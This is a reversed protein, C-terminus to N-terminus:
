DTPTASLGVKAPSNACNRRDANGATEAVFSGNDVKLAFNGASLAVLVFKEWPGLEGRDTKINAVGGNEATGYFGSLTRFAYTRPKHQGQASAAMAVCARAASLRILM